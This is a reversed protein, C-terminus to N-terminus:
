GMVGVWSELMMAWFVIATSGATSSKVFPALVDEGLESFAPSSWTVDEDGGGRFTLPNPQNTTTVAMREDVKRKARSLVMAAFTAGAMSDVKLSTPRRAQIETAYRSPAALMVRNQYTGLAAKNGIGLAAEELV